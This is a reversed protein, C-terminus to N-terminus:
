KKVINRIRLSVVIGWFGLYSILAYKKFQSNKRDKLITTRYKKIVKWTKQKCNNYGFVPIQENIKMAERFVMNVGANHLDKFYKDTYNLEEISLNLMEMYKKSFTKNDKSSNSIGDKRNLYNYNKEYSMIIRKSKGFLLYTTGLDEFLKNAPYKIDMFLRKDYLKGWASVYGRKGYMLNELAEENTM